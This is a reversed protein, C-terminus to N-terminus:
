PNQNDCLKKVFSVLKELGDKTFDSASLVIKESNMKAKAGAKTSLKKAERIASSPEILGWGYTTDIGSKGADVATKYFTSTIKSILTKYKINEAKLASLVLALVGSVFPTAMSTGSLKAYGKPPWCSTVDVGPAAIDVKGRSSFKAALNSKDVAAVSICEKMNAPYNTTGETPGENGAAAVLYCGKDYAYKIAASINKDAASSGFSMSLIDAGSDAAWKIGSAIWKSNGAGDDNLVKGILLKCDPAVGIIGSDNKNGSVVGACHTGHGNNDYPGATSGTFDKANLIQGILDPHNLSAGTDLVAVKINKGSSVRWADPINFARLGWDITESCAVSLAEVNFPPIKYPLKDKRKM